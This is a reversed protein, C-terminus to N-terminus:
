LRPVKFLLNLIHDANDWGPTSKNITCDQIACFALIGLCQLLKNTTGALHISLGYWIDSDAPRAALLPAPSQHSLGAFPVTQQATLLCTDPMFYPGPVWLFGHMLPTHKGIPFPVRM